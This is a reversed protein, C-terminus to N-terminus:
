RWWRQVPAPSHTSCPGEQRHPPPRSQRSPARSSTHFPVAFTLDMAICHPSLLGPTTPHPPPPRSEHSRVVIASCGGRSPMIILAGDHAGHAHSVVSPHSLSPCMHWLHLYTRHSQTHTHACARAHTHSLTHLSEWAAIIWHWQANRKTVTAAEANPHTRGGARKPRLRM